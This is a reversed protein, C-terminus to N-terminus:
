TPTPQDGDVASVTGPQGPLSAFVISIVLCAIVTLSRLALLAASSGAQKRASMVSGETYTRGAAAPGKRAGGGRSSSTMALARGPDACRSPVLDWGSGLEDSRPLGSLHRPQRVQALPKFRLHDRGPVPLRVFLRRGDSRQFWARRPM